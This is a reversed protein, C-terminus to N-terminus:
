GLLFYLHVLGVSEGQIIKKIKSFKMPTTMFLGHMGVNLSIKSIIISDDIIVCSRM